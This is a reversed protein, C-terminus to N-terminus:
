IQLFTFVYHQVVMAGVECTYGRLRTDDIQKNICALFKGSINQPPLHDNSLHDNPMQDLVHNNPIQDAHISSQSFMKNTPPPLDPTPIWSLTADQFELFTHYLPYLAKFISEKASFLLYFRLYRLLSIENLWNKEEPTSIHDALQAAVNQDIYEIDIGLAFCDKQKAVASVAWNYSHSITGILGQPWLPEDHEGRLVPSPTIGIKQMATHAAIRGMAFEQKRKFVSKESLLAWEEPYVQSFNINTSQCAFGINSSFPSFFLNSIEM